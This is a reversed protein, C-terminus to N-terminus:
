PEVSAAIRFKMSPTMTPVSSVAIPTCAAPLSPIPFPPRGGVQNILVLPLELKLEIMDPFLCLSFLRPHLSVFIWTLSGGFPGVRGTLCKDDKPSEGGV